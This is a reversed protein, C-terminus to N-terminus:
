KEREFSVYNYWYLVTTFQLRVELLRQCIFSIHHLCSISVPLRGDGVLVGGCVCM